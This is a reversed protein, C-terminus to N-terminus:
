FRAAVAVPTALTSGALQSLWAQYSPLEQIAPLALRDDWRLSRRARRHRERHVYSVLALYDEKSIPFGLQAQIGQRFLDHRRGERVLLPFDRRPRWQGRHYHYGLYSYAAKMLEDVSSSGGGGAPRTSWTAAASTPVAAPVPAASAGPSAVAVPDRPALSAPLERTTALGFPTPAHAWAADSRGLYRKHQRGSPDRWQRYLYPGHPQGRACRCNPKGCRVLQVIIWSRSSGEMEHDPYQHGARLGSGANCGNADM